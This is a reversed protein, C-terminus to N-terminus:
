LLVQPNTDGSDTCRIVYESRPSESASGASNVGVVDIVHEEVGVVACEPSRPPSSVAAATTITDPKRDDNHKSLNLPVAPVRPMPPVYHKAMQLKVPLTYKPTPNVLQWQLPKHDQAQSKQAPGPEMNDQRPLQAVSERTKQHTRHNAAVTQTINQKTVPQRCYFSAFAVALVTVSALGVAAFAPVRFQQRAPAAHLTSKLEEWTLSPSEQCSSEERLVM